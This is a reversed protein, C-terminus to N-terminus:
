RVGILRELNNLKKELQEIRETLTPAKYTEAFPKGKPAEKALQKIPERMKEQEQESLNIQSGARQNMYENFDSM